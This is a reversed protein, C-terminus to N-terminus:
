DVAVVLKCAQLCAHVLRQCYWFFWRPVNSCYRSKGGPGHLHLRISDVIPPFATHVTYFPCATPINTPLTAELHWHHKAAEPDPIRSHPVRSPAKRLKRLPKQPKCLKGPSICWNQRPKPVPVPQPWAPRRNALSRLTTVRVDYYSPSAGNYSATASGDPQQVEWELRAALGQQGAHRTPLQTCARM